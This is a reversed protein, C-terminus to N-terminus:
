VLNIVNTIELVWLIGLGALMFNAVTFIFNFM